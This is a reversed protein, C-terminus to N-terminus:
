IKNKKQTNEKTPRESYKTMIANIKQAQETETKGFFHHNVMTSFVLKAVTYKKFYLKTEHKPDNKGFSKIVQGFLRSLTHLKKQQAEALFNYQIHNKIKEKLEKSINNASIDLSIIKNNNLLKIAGNDTIVCDSVDLHTLMKSKALATIGEDEIINDSVNLSILKSKALVQSVNDGIHNNSLSLHTLTCKVLAATMEDASEDDFDNNDLCLHTLTNIQFLDIAGKYTIYNTGLDLKKIEPHKLLFHCLEPIDDDHLDRESLILESTGDYYNKYQSLLKSMNSTSLRNLM